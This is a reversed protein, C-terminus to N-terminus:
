CRTDRYSLSQSLSLCLLLSTYQSSDSTVQRLIATAAWLQLLCSLIRHQIKSFVCEAPVEAWFM